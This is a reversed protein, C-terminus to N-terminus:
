SPTPVSGPGSAIAQPGPLFVRFSAGGGSRDQVWARGGHIDAFRAVLSLGIGSGSGNPDGKRFAEFINAKLDEPVGPGDDEVVVLAGGEHPLVRVWIRSERPTHRVANVLLNEIMREVKPPDVPAVVPRAVMEVERSELVDTGHVLDTVLQGIDVPFRTPEAVGRGLRELDLMDSLLRDMRKARGAMGDLLERREAEGLDPRKLASAAALVATIPGKLDHSLTHLLTNKLEDLNRLESAQARERDLADQLDSEAAKHATIDLLFGQSYLPTGDEDRVIEAVDRVWLVHGDRHVIRYTQDFSEGTTV